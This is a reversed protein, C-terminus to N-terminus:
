EATPSTLARRHASPAMNAFGLEAASLWLEPRGYGVVRAGPFLATRTSVLPQVLDVASGANAPKPSRRVIMQGPTPVEPVWALHKWGARLAASATDRVQQEIRQQAGHAAIRRTDARRGERLTKGPHHTEGRDILQQRAATHLETLQVSAAARREAADRGTRDLDFDVKQASGVCRRGTPRHTQVLGRKVEVWYQCDPCVLFANGKAPLLVDLASLSTIPLPPRGNTRSKSSV